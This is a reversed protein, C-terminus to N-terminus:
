RKRKSLGALGLASLLTVGVLSAASEQTGTNPLQPQEPKKPTNPKEPEPDPKPTNSKVTNSIYDVGNVRNTYKNHFEGYAVRKMDISADAGFESSDVVSKLFDEKFSITIVGNAEDHVAETFKTVEEGTKIVSTRRVKSGKAVKQGAKVVTGDELTVDEKFTTDEKVEELQRVTIDTTAVVKYKGLYKDGTQDYDDVYRYEWVHSGRNGPLKAGSLLYSFEQGYTITGGNASKGDVVVDKKPTLIPVNNRVVNGYYGNGFDIQYTQNQFEGTFGKNVAMPLHFFIDQGTKVYKDYFAQSDKAVWVQFKGFNSVDIGSDKIFQQVHEPLENLKTSDAEYFDLGEVKEGKSTVAYYDKSIPTVAKEPYNELYGFGKAIASKSSKDNIYQDLDWEAVYYNVDNQLVSANNINKGEKNTNNKVPQIKHNGNGNPNSPNNPNNPSGPTHIRVKNSYSTYGEGKPKDPTVQKYVYTVETIGETVKGNEIGVTKNPVLKYVKGEVTIENPKNKTTDYPTGVKEGKSVTKDEKLTNGEEDVYHVIVGGVSPTPTVPRYYYTVLKTGEEVQGKENGEVHSTVREYTVGNKTITELIHDTTDYTSGVSDNVVDKAKGLLINTGEVRYEVNVSGTANGGNVDMRFVNEYTAGDNLTRFIVTFATPSYSKSLDANSNALEKETATLELKRTASDYSISYMPNVSTMGKVDLELGDVMYDSLVLSTTTPRGAPLAKPRLIFHNTSGKAVSENNINVGDENRAEKEAPTNVVLSTLHYNVEPAKPADPVRRYNPSVPMSVKSLVLKPNNPISPVEEPTFKNPTYPVPTWTTDRPTYTVKEYGVSKWSTNKPSFVEKEYSVPKWETSGPTYTVKEYTVPVYTPPTQPKFVVPEYTAKEYTAKEYTVPTYPVPQGPTYTLKEYTAPTFTAPKAEYTVPTYTAPEYTVKEYSDDGTTPTVPQKLIIKSKLTTPISLWDGFLTFEIYNPNQNRFDNDYSPAPHDLVINQAKFREDFFGSHVYKITDGSMTYLYAGSPADNLDSVGGVPAEFVQHNFDRTLGSGKPNLTTVGSEASIHSTQQYDVDSIIGSYAGKVSINTGKLVPKLILEYGGAGLYNIDIANTTSYGISNYVPGTYGRPIYARATVLLDISAGGTSDVNRMEGANNLRYTMEKYALGAPTYKTEGTFNTAYVPPTIFSDEKVRGARVAGAFDEISGGKLDSITTLGEKWRLTVPSVGDATSVAQYSTIARRVYEWGRVFMNNSRPDIGAFYSTDQTSYIDDIRNRNPLSTKERELKANYEDVTKQDQEMNGTYSLGAAEMVSRNYAKISDNQQNSSSAEEVAKKASLSRKENEAAASQSRRDTEAKASLSRKNNEAVVSNSKETNEEKVKEASLSRKATEEKASNSRRANEADVEQSRQADNQTGSAKASLSRRENEAKASNSRKATEADASQSRKATEEKASNSRRANEADVQQSRQTENTTGQEKAALSRKENEAKASDSRRATEKDASTSRRVTEADASLSRKKNEDVVSNSKAVNDAEVAKVANSRKENEAKASLSRKNNEADVSNSKDVNAQEANKAANSRKENEAKASLSRKNNEEVVSNSKATNEAEVAKASNSRKDNEAQASLSRKNNEEVVSNSKAVNDVEVAKASNSRNINELSVSNSKERNELEIRASNSANRSEVLSNATSKSTYEAKKVLYEKVAEKNLGEHEALYKLYEQYGEVTNGNASNQVQETVEIIADKHKAVVEATESDLIKIFNNYAEVAKKHAQELDKNSAITSNKEKAWQAVATSHKTATSNLENAKESEKATISKLAKDTDEATSTATAVETKDQNVIVGVSKADEAAKKLETHDVSVPVNGSVKDANDLDAKRVDSVTGAPDNLNTSANGTPTDNVIDGEKVESVVSTPATSDVSEDALVTTASTGMALGVAALGLIVGAAGGSKMTRISGYTKTESSYKM